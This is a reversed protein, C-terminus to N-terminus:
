DDRPRTTETGDYVMRGDVIRAFVARVHPSTEGTPMIHEVTWGRVVLLDSIIRRHCRWWLGESCMYAARSGVAAQTLERMGDEFDASETYDAYSRFAPTKWYLEHQIAGNLYTLATVIM